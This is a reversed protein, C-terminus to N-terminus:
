KLGLIRRFDVAAVIPIGNWVELDVLHHDNSVILDAKGDAACELIRNDDPDRIVAHVETRPTIVEGVEAVVRIAKQVRDEAWMFNSRLVRALERIVAPSVLLEYRGKRAAEWLIANRGKRFAFAAVYINTDLVVKLCEGGRALNM